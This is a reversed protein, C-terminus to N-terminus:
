LQAWNHSFVEAPNNAGLHADMPADEDMPEVLIAAMQEAMTATKNNFGNLNAAPCVVLFHPILDHNL